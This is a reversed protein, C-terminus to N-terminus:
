SLLFPIYSLSPDDGVTTNLLEKVSSLFDKVMSETIKPISSNTEFLSNVLNQLAPTLQKKRRMEQLLLDKILQTQSFGLFCDFPDNFKSPDQFFLVENKFNEINYDITKENRNANECVYCYKYFPRNIYPMKEDRLQLSSDKLNEVFLKHIYEKVWTHEMIKEM